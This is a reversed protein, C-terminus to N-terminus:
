GRSSEGQSAFRPLTITFTTGRGASSTYDLEGDMAQVLTKSLPLGLGLGGDGGRDTTAFFPEFVRDGLEPAIGPGRDAVRIVCRAADVEAWLTVSEGKPSAEIANRVLSSMVRTIRARALRVPSSPPDVNAELTVSRERAFSQLPDIAEDMAEALVFESPSEGDEGYLELMRRVITAIRDIERDIRGVYEHYPHDRPIADRILLFSNKIGALPNSIEHAIAAAMRGTVALLESQRPDHASLEEVKAEDMSCHAIFDSRPGGGDPVPEERVSM